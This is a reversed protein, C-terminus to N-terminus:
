VRPLWDISTVIDGDRDVYVYETDSGCGVLTVAGIVAMASYLLSLKAKKM